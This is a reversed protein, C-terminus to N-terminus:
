NRLEILDPSCCARKKCTNEKCLLECENIYGHEPIEGKFEPQITTNHIGFDHLIDKVSQALPSFQVKEDCTVHVTAITRKDDLQWM